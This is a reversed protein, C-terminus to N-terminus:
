FLSHVNEPPRGLAAKDGKIVIPREILIPHDVMAQVWQEETLSKGKYQEKFIKEGKRIIQEARMDLKKLISKLEEASPNKELYKLVDVDHGEQEIIQLTQRSKTCRPNHLITLHNSM